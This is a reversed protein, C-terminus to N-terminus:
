NYALAFILQIMTEGNTGTPLGNVSDITITQKQHEGLREIELMKM